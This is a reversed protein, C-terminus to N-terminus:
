VEQWFSGDWGYYRLVDTDYVLQGVTATLAFRQATTVTMIGGGSTSILRSLRNLAQQVGLYSFAPLQVHPM